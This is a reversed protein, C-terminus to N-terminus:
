RRTVSTSITRTSSAKGDDQDSSMVLTFGITESDSSSSQNEFQLSQVAVRSSTANWTESNMTKTLQENNLQYSYAVGKTVFQLSNSVNGADAPSIVEDSNYIDYKLKALVYESEQQLASRALDQTQQELSSIFLGNIVVLLISFLGFYVLLEVLTFGNQNAQYPQILIKM